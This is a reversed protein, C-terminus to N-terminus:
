LKRTIKGEFDIEETVLGREALWGSRGAFAAVDEAKSRISSLVQQVAGASRAGILRKMDEDLATLQAALIRLIANRM